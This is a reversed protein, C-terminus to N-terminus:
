KAPAAGKVYARTIVDDQQIKQVVDMGRVVQGFVTYSGDLGRTREISLAIYMQADAQAANGSHAMAVAGVKHNRAPSMEAVGVPKGSGTRGWGSRKALDRTTPDGFQAVFGPVVRHIRQGNYFNRKVLALIHEVTRPAENPYTEFEFSGRATEVVIVPGAAADAAGSDQAEQAPAGAQAARTGVAALALCVVAATTWTLIARRKV